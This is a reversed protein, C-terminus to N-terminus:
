FILKLIQQSDSLIQCFFGWSSAGVHLKLHAAYNVGVKPLWRAAKERVNVVSRTQVRSFNYDLFVAMSMM